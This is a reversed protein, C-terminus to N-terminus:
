PCFLIHSSITYKITLFGLRVVRGLKRAPDSCHQFVVDLPCPLYEEGQGRCDPASGCEVDAGWSGTVLSQFAWPQFGLRKPIIARLLCFFGSVSWDGQRGTSRPSARALTESDVSVSHEEGQAQASRLQSCQRSKTVQMRTTWRM